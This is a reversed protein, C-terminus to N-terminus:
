DVAISEREDISYRESVRLDTAVSLPKILGPDNEKLSNVRPTVAHAHMWRASYSQLVAMAEVPTGRLWTQYHKRRIIAPMYPLGTTGLILPNGPVRLVACSEIVDDNAEHVSRDWIGALAFVSRHDLSFFFPQRHRAPTMRWLYFGMIPILCRQGELWPARYLKSHLQNVDTSATPSGQPKGQAWEPILGWHLMTAETSGAHWRIAPLRQPPAVNFHAAFSWWAKEPLFEREAAIQDPLAYRDGM